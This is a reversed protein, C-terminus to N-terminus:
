EWLRIRTIKEDGGIFLSGNRYAISEAASGIEYRVLEVGM